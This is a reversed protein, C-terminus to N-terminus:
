FPIVTPLVPYRRALERATQQYEMWRRAMSEMRDRLDGPGADPHLHTSVMFGEGGADIHFCRDPLEAVMVTGPEADNVARWTSLLTFLIERKSIMSGAEPMDRM